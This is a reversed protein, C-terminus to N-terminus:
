AKVWKYINSVQSGQKTQHPALICFAFKSKPTNEQDQQYSTIEKSEKYRFYFCWQHGYLWKNISIIFPAWNRRELIYLSPPFTSYGWAKQISLKSTRNVITQVRVEILIFFSETGLTTITELINIIVKKRIIWKINNQYSQLPISSFAIPVHASSINAGISAEKASSAGSRGEPNRMIGRSDPFTLKMYQQVKFWNIQKYKTSM